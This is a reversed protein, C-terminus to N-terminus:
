LYRKILEEIQDYMNIMDKDPYSSTPFYCQIFTIKSFKTRIPLLALRDSIPEYNDIMPVLNNKVLFGVGNSRSTENGSIFLRHGHNDLSEITSEKCKTESFGIVDWNIDELEYIM